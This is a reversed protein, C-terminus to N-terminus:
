RVVAGGAAVLAVSLVRVLAVGARAHPWECVEPNDCSGAAARCTTGLPLYDFCCCYQDPAM